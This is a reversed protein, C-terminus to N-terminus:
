KKKVNMDLNLDRAAKAAMIEMFYFAGNQVPGQGGGTYYSPVVNGQYQGFASAWFQQSKVWADLKQTLAGDASMVLRKKEAEGQGDLINKLKTQEAAQRELTAVELKQQAETVAKAKIVEQEWKAKAADAEGNKAVTIARQEAKKADAISTQVDMAIQQQQAIQKEVASDYPLKDIAFNFTRIEFEKMSSEEQRAPRGTEPDEVIEVITVTKEAGTMPDITKTEKSTTKYVGGSIQDEVYSILYNRKEAYSEKSSMLPGTMYISKDVVTKILSSELGEQSSFKTHIRKMQDPLMPLEYQVSGEVTGHGGDNFRVANKFEYKSRKKYITVSGFKQPKVGADFYFHLDGDIPDQVVAIEDADVSVFWKPITVVTVLFLIIALGGFIRKALSKGSWSTFSKKIQSEYNQMNTKTKNNIM